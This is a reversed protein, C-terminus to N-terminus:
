HRGRKQKLSLKCALDLSCFVNTSGAREYWRMVTLPIRFRSQSRAKHAPPTPTSASFQCNGVLMAEPTHEYHPELSRGDAQCATEANRELAAEMLLRHERGLDRVIEALPVSLRRYRESQDYLMVRLRLLWPSDCADVLASHFIAHAASWEESLREPDGEEREPLRSLRHYASLMEAEWAVSGVEMARVLALQEINIRVETLDLLEAPSLGAVRFGRQPEAEVLGEATLRSLAERVASLNVSLSQCLDATKLRAGPRLRCALVDARLREYAAQTLSLATIASNSM